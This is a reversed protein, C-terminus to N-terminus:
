RKRESLSVRKGLGKRWLVAAAAIMIVFAVLPFSRNTWALTGEEDLHERVHELPGSYGIGEQVPIPNDVGGGLGDVSFDLSTDIHNHPGWDKSFNVTTKQTLFKDPEQKSYDVLSNVVSDKRSARIESSFFWEAKEGTAPSLYNIRYTPTTPFTQNFWTALENNTMFTVDRRKILERVYDQIFPIAGSRYAWGFEFEVRAYGFPQTSNLTEDILSTIYTAARTRDGHSMELANLPHTNYRHDRTYRAVLDFTVHPLVITGKDKSPVYINTRNAYYPFQWGGRMTMYDVLYQDLCYGAVYRTGYNQALYNSTFTDPQFQFSGNPNTGLIKKFTQLNRDVCEKREEPTYTQLYYFVPIIEGKTALYRIFSERWIIEYSMLLFNFRTFGECSEIFRTMEDVLREEDLGIGIQVIKTRPQSVYPSVALAPSPTLLLITLLIILRQKM